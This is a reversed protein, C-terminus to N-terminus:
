MRHVKSGCIQAWSVVLGCGSSMGLKILQSLLSVHLCCSCVVEGKEKVREVNM